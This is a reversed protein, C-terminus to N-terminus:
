FRLDCGTKGLAPTGRPTVAAPVELLQVRAVTDGAADRVTLCADPAGIREIRGALFLSVARDLRHM